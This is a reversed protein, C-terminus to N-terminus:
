QLPISAERTVKAWKATEDAIASGGSTPIAVNYPIKPAAQVGRWRHM